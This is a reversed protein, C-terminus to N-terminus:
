AKAVEKLAYLTDKVKQAVPCTFGDTAIEPHKEICFNVWACSASVVDYMADFVKENVQVTKSSPALKTAKIEVEPMM